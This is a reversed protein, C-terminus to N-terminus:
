PDGRGNLAARLKLMAYRYRSAVTNISEATLDAIEQFTLGEFVKLHVVERQDAPVERLASELALREDPRDETVAELLEGTAEIGATRRRRLRSICENRVARRLYHDPTEVAATGRRVLAEFVQHVADEADSADALIMLAYRHLAPGLRQYLLGPDADSTGGAAKTM